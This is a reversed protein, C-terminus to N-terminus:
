WVIFGVKADDDESEDSSEDDNEDLNDVDGYKDKVISFFYISSLRLCKLEPKSKLHMRVNKSNKKAVGHIM